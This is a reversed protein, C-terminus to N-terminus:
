DKMACGCCITGDTGPKREVPELLERGCKACNEDIPPQREVVPTLLKRAERMIVQRGTSANEWDDNEAISVMDSLQSLCADLRDETDAARGILDRHLRSLEDFAREHRANAELLDKLRDEQEHWADNGAKRETELRSTLAAVQKELSIIEDEAHGFEKRSEQLKSQLEAILDVNNCVEYNGCCDKIESM